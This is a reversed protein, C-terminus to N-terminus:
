KILLFVYFICQYQFVKARELTLNHEHVMEEEWSEVQNPQYEEDEDEYEELSGESDTDELGVAKNPTLNYKSVLFKNTLSGLGMAEMRTANLKLTDVRQKEYESLDAVRGVQFKSQKGM